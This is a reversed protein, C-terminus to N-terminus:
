NTRGNIKRKVTTIHHSAVKLRAYAMAAEDSYWISKVTETMWQNFREVNTQPVINMTYTTNHTGRHVNRNNAISNNIKFM